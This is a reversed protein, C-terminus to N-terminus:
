SSSGWSSAAGSIPGTPRYSPEFGDRRFHMLFVVTSITAAGLIVVFSAGELAQSAFHALDQM